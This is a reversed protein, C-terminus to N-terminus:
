HVEDDDHYRVGDRLALVNSIGEPYRELMAPM